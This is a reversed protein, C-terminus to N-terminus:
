NQARQWHQINWTNLAYRRTYAYGLPSRRTEWKESWHRLLGADHLQNLGSRITRPGLGYWDAGREIPLEFFEETPPQQLSFAILLMAKAPLRLSAWLGSQWILNPLKFYPEDTEYPHSWPLGSGDDRLVRISRLKGAPRAVVFSEAELWAWSRSITARTGPRDAIGLVRAWDSSRAVIEDDIALPSLAHALLLLDLATTRRQSVFNALPGHGGQPPHLFTRRLPTNERLNTLNYPGVTPAAPHTPFDNVLTNCRNKSSVPLALLYRRCVCRHAVKNTGDSSM